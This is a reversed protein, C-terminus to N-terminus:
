VCLLHTILSLQWKGLEREHARTGVSGGLVAQRLHVTCVVLARRCSLLCLLTDNTVKRSCRFCEGWGWGCTLLSDVAPHAVPELHAWAPVELSHSCDLVGWFSM